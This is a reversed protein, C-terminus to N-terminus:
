TLGLIKMEPASAVNKLTHVKGKPFSKHIAKETQSMPHQRFDSLKPLKSAGCAPVPATAPPRIAHHAGSKHPLFRGQSHGKSATRHYSIPADCSACRGGIACKTFSAISDSARNAANRVQIAIAEVQASDAKSLMATIISQHIADLWSRFNETLGDVAEQLRRQSVYGLPTGCQASPDMLHSLDGPPRDLAGDLLGTLPPFTVRSGSPSSGASTSLVQSLNLDQSKEAGTQPMDSSSSASPHGGEAACATGEVNSLRSLMEATRGGVQQLGRKLEQIDGVVNTLENRASEESAKVLERLNDEIRQVDEAVPAQSAADAPSTQKSFAEALGEVKQRLLEHHELLAALESSRPSTGADTRRRSALQEKVSSKM